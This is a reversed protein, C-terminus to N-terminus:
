PRGAFPRTRGGAAADVTNRMLMAVTMPGVGGPVPTLASAVLAVDPAVDGILKTKGPRDPHPIRHMGVDVVVAGPRIMDATVVGASGAAAVVVDAMRTLRGPDKSRSHLLIVSADRGAGKQSLLNALPRGVVNSRGIVAVVKGSLDIGERVLLYHIGLPTCPVFAPEGRVLRGVNVPHFGDVDKEPAMLDLLETANWGGPLPLQLLIGHVAPDANLRRMETRAREPDADAPLIIERAQVGVAASAESKKRLYIVSAPDEGIRMMVLTPVIGRERLRRAEEKVEGHIEEARLKGDILRATMSDSRM